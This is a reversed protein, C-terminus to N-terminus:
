NNKNSFENKIEELSYFNKNKYDQRKELVEKHWYPFNINDFENLLEEMLLIKEETKLSKIDIM